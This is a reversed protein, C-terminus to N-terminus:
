SAAKCNDDGGELIKKLPAETAVRSGPAQQRLLQPDRLQQTTTSTLQAWRASYKQSAMQAISAM